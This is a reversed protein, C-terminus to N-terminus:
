IKHGPGGPLSLKGTALDALIVGSKPKMGLGSVIVVPKTPHLKVERMASCNVRWLERGSSPSFCALPGVWNGVVYTDRQWDLAFRDGINLAAPLATVARDRPDYIVVRKDGAIVLNQRDDVDITNM